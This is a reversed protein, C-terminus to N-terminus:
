AHRKRRKLFLVAGGILLLIGSSPEPAATIEPSWVVLNNPITLGSGLVHHNSVLDDYSSMASVGMRIERDGAEDWQLLEIYFSYSAWNESGLETLIDWTTTMSGEKPEYAFGGDVGKPLAIAGVDGYGSEANWTNGELSATPAAYVVAYHFEVENDDGIQWYLFSDAGEWDASDAVVRGTVLLCSLILFIRQIATSM